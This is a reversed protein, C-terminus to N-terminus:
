ILFPALNFYQLLFMILVFSFDPRCRVILFESCVRNRKM